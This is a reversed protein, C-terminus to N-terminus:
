SNAQDARIVEVADQMTKVTKFFVGTVGHPNVLISQMGANLGFVVDTLKDGLMWSRDFDVDAVYSLLGIAPKRCTCGDSKLHPCYLWKAIKVGHAEFMDRLYEHTREVFEAKILGRGIGSQNTVVFLLYGLQQLQQLAPVVNDCVRLDALRRLYNVDHILLGDRDLFIAKSRGM